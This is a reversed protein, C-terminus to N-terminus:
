NSWSPERGGPSPVFPAVVRKVLYQYLRCREDLLRLGAEVRHAVTHRQDHPLGEFEVGRVRYALGVHGAKTLFVEDDVFGWPALLENVSGSEVYDRLIRRIRTM